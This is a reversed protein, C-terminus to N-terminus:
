ANMEVDVGAAKSVVASAAPGEDQEMEQRQEEVMNAKISSSAALCVLLYLLYWCAMSGIIGLSLEASNVAKKACMASTLCYKGSNAQSTGPNLSCSGGTCTYHSLSGATVANCQVNPAVGCAPTSEDYNNCYCLGLKSRVNSGTDFNDITWQSISDFQSFALASLVCSLIITVLGLGQYVTILTPSRTRMAVIGVLGLCAVLAPGVIALYTPTADMDTTHSQNNIINLAELLNLVGFGVMVVGGGHLLPGTIRNWSLLRGAATVGGLMVLGMLLCFLGMLSLDASIKDKLTIKCDPIGQGDVCTDKPMAGKVSQYDYDVYLQM